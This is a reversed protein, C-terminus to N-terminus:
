QFDAQKLIYALLCRCYQVGDRKETQSPICNKRDSEDKSFAHGTGSKYSKSKIWTQCM